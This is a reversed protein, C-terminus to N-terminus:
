HGLKNLIRSDKLKKLIGHMQKNYIMNSLHTATAEAKAWLLTHASETLQAEFLMALICDQCSNASLSMISTSHCTLHLYFKIIMSWEKCITTLKNSHNPVNNWCLFMAQKGQVKMQGLIVQCIQSKHQKPSSTYQGHRTCINTWLRKLLKM